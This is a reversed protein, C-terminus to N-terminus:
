RFHSLRTLIKVSFKSHLHYLDSFCRQNFSLDTLFNLSMGASIHGVSKREKEGGWLIGISCILYVNSLRYNNTKLEVECFVELESLHM